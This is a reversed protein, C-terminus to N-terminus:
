AKYPKYDSTIFKYTSEFSEYISVAPDNLGRFCSLDFLGKFCIFLKYLILLGSFPNSSKLM